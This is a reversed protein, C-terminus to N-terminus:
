SVALRGCHHTHFFADPSSLTTKEAKLNVNEPMAEGPHGNEPAPPEQFRSNSILLEGNDIAAIASVARRDSIAFM